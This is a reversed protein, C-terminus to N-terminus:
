VIQYNVISTKFSIRFYELFLNSNLKPLGVIPENVENYSESHIDLLHPNRQCPM